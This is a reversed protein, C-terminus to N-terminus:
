INLKLMSMGIFYLDDILWRDFGVDGPFDGPLSVWFLYLSDDIVGRGVPAVHLPVFTFFDYFCDVFLLLFFWFTGFVIFYYNKYFSRCWIFLKLKELVTVFGYTLM